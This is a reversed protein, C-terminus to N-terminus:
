DSDAWVGCIERWLPRRWRRTMWGDGRDCQKGLRCGAPPEDSWDSCARCIAERRGAEAAIAELLAAVPATRKSSRRRRGSGCEKYYRASQTIRETSCVTCVHRYLNESIKTTAFDCIM